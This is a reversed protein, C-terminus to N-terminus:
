QPHIFFLTKSHTHTDSFSGLFNNKPSTNWFFFGSSILERLHYPPPASIRHKLAYSNRLVFGPFIFYFFRVLYTSTSSLPLPEAPRPHQLWLDVELCRRWIKERCTYMHDCVHTYTTVYIFIYIYMYALALTWKYVAVVFMLFALDFNRGAHTCTTVYINVRPWNYSYAYMHLLWLKVELCRRGFKEM